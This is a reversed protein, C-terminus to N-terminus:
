GSHDHRAGDGKYGRDGCGTDYVQRGVGESKAKGRILEQKELKLLHQRAGEKTMGLEEAVSSATVEGQMKISILIKDITSTIDM